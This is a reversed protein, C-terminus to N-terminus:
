SCVLGINPQTATNFPWSSHCLLFYHNMIPRLCDPVWHAYQNTGAWVQWLTLGIFDHLAFLKWFYTHKQENFSDKM